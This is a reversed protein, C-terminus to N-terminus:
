TKLINHATYNFSDTQDRYYHVFPRINRCYTVLDLILEKAETTHGKGKKQLYECKEDYKITSFKLNDITPLICNTAVNFRHLSHALM